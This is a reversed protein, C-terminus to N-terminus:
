TTSRILPPLEICRGDDPSSPAEAKPIPMEKYDELPDLGDPVVVRKGPVVAQYPQLEDCTVRVEDGGCASLGVILLLGFLASTARTRTM